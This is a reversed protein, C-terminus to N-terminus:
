AVAEYIHKQVELPSKAIAATVYRQPAAPATKAKDLIWVSVQFAQDADLTVGCNRQIADVVTRLSTIGRQGALRKTM